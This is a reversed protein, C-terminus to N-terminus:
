QLKFCYPSAAVSYLAASAHSLAAPRNMCLLFKAAAPASMSLTVAGRRCAVYALTLAPFSAPFSTLNCPCTDELECAAISIKPKSAAHQMSNAQVAVGSEAETTDM